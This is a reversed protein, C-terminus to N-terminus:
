YRNISVMGKNCKIGIISIKGKRCKIGIISIKSKRCKRHKYCKMYIKSKIGIIPIM